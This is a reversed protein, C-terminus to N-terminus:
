CHLPVITLPPSWTVSISINRLWVEGADPTIGRQLIGAMPPYYVCGFTRLPWIQWGTNTKVRTLSAQSSWRYAAFLVNTTPMQVASVAVWTLSIEVCTTVAAPAINLSFYRLIRNSKVHKKITNYTGFVASTFILRVYRLVICKQNDMCGM